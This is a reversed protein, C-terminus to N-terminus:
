LWCLGQLLVHDLSGKQVSVGHFLTRGHQLWPGDRARLAAEMAMLGDFGSCWFADLPSVGDIAGFACGARLQEWGFPM